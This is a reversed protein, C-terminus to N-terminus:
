YSFNEYFMLVIVKLRNEPKFAHNKWIETKLFRWIRLACVFSKRIKIQFRVAPKGTHRVFCAVFLSKKACYCAIKKVKVNRSAKLFNWAVPSPCNCSFEEYKQKDRSKRQIKMTKTDLRCLKAFVRLLNERVDKRLYSFVENTRRTKKIKKRRFHKYYGAFQLGFHRINFTAM